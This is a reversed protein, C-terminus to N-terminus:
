SGGVRPRRNRGGPHGAHRFFHVTSQLGNRSGPVVLISVDIWVPKGAKTRTAMEFHQIPEGMKVLSQVHCGPLLPSQGSPRQGRLRRLLPPGGGGAGKSILGNLDM